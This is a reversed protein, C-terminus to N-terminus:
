SQGNKGNAEALMLELDGKRNLKVTDTACSCSSLALLQTFCYGFSLCRVNSFYFFGFLHSSFSSLVQAAVLTSAVQENPCLNSV